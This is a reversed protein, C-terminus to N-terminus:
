KKEPFVILPVLAKEANIRGHGVFQDKGPYLDQNVDDSSYRIINMVDGAELSPKVSRILAALGSVHAASASTGTAYSYPSKSNDDWELAPFWVPVCGIIRIGPAAVDIEPGFNSWITRADNYDTAAVALVYDDFAAPFLVAGSDNGASAVIVIDQEYAYQIANELAQAEAPDSSDIGISFNIVDVGQDVLWLIAEIVWSTLSYEDATFVKAPLVKCNWAVGAIGINNDTEAAIISAVYTGHGHDDTADDDGNAFDKGKSVYKNQLDPHDFDLGTDIVGIIVDERGKTEEWGMPAKIDASAKGQPSGPVDGVAQGSNSLAYQLYFFPDNPTSTLKFSRNPEAFKVLPNQRLVYVMEEVTKDKPVTLQHINLPSIIKVAKTRYVSLLARQLEMRVSPVFQVLIQDTEFFEADNKSQRPAANKFSQLSNLPVFYPRNLGSRHPNQSSASLFLFSFLLILAITKFNKM